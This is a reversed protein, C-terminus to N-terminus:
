ALNTLVLRAKIKVHMLFRTCVITKSSIELCSYTLVLLAKIKMYILFIKKLLDRLMFPNFSDNDQNDKEM